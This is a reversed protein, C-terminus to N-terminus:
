GDKNTAVIPTPLSNGGGKRKQARRDIKSGTACRNQAQLWGHVNCGVLHPIAAKVWQHASECSPDWGVDWGAQLHGAPHVGAKNFYVIQENIGRVKLRWDCSNRYMYKHNNPRQQRYLLSLLPNSLTDKIMSRSM